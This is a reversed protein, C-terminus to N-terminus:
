RRCWHTGSRTDTRDKGEPGMEAWTAGLSGEAHGLSHPSGRARVSRKGGIIEM